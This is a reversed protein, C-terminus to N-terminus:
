CSAMRLDKAISTAITGLAAEGCDDIEFAFARLGIDSVSITMRILLQSAQKLPSGACWCPLTVQPDVIPPRSAKGAIGFDPLRTEHWTSHIQTLESAPLSHQSCDIPPRGAHQSPVRSLLTAPVDVPTDTM